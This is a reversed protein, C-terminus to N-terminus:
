DFLESDKYYKAEEEYKDKINILFTELYEKIKDGNEIEYTEEIIEKAVEFLDLIAKSQAM